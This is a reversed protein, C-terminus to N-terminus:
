TKRYTSKFSIKIEKFLFVFEAPLALPGHNLTTHHQFMTYIRVCLRWHPEPMSEKCM